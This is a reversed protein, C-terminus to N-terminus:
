SEVDGFTFSLFSFSMFRWSHSVSFSALIYSCFGWVFIKFVAKFLMERGVSMIWIFLFALMMIIPKMELVPMTGHRQSSVNLLYLSWLFSLVCVLILFFWTFYFKIWSRHLNQNEFMLFVLCCQLNILGLHIIINTM